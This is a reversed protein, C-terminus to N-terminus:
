AGRYIHSENDSLTLYLCSNKNEFTYVFNSKQVNRRVTMSLVNIIFVEVVRWFNHSHWKQYM